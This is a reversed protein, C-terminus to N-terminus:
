IDNLSTDSGASIVGARQRRLGRSTGQLPTPVTWLGTRLRVIAANTLLVVSRTHRHAIAEIGPDACSKRIAPIRHKQM